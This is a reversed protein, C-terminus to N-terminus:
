RRRMFINAARQQALLTIDVSRALGLDMSNVMPLSPLTLNVNRLYSRYTCRHVYSCASIPFRSFTDPYGSLGTVNTEVCKENTVSLCNSIQSVSTNPVIRKLWGGVDVFWDLVFSLTALEWLTPLLNNWDLGLAELLGLARTRRFYTTAYVRQTERITECGHAYCGVGTNRIFPASTIVKGGQWGARSKVLPSVERRLQKGALERYSEIEGILPLIGYRMMLWANGTLKLAASANRPLLKNLEKGHRALKLFPDRMMALTEPAEGMTVGSAVYAETQRALAKQLAFLENETISPSPTYGPAFNQAVFAAVEGEISRLKYMRSWYEGYLFTKQGNVCEVDVSDHIIPNVIGQGKRYKRTKNCQTRVKSGVM